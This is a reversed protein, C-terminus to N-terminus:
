GTSRPKALLKALEQRGKGSKLFKERRTAETRSPFEEQHVLEWQGPNKTSKTLGSNHQGLRQVLNSTFGTYHRRSVSNRLVYVFFM